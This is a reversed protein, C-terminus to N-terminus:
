PMGFRIRILTQWRFGLPLAGWRTGFLARTTGFGANKQLNRQRWDMAFTCIYYLTQFWCQPPFRFCWSCLKQKCVPWFFFVNIGLRRFPQTFCINLCGWFVCQFSWRHPSSLRLRWGLTMLVEASLTKPLCILCIISYILYPPTPGWIFVGVHLSM